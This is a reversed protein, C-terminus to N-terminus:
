CYLPVRVRVCLCSHSWMCANVEHTGNAQDRPVHICNAQIAAAVEDDAGLEEWATRPMTCLQSFVAHWDVLVAGEQRVTATTTLHRMWGWTNQPGLSQDHYRQPYPGHRSAADDQSATPELATSHMWISPPPVRRMDQLSVNLLPPVACVCSVCADCYAHTRLGRERCVPTGPGHQM